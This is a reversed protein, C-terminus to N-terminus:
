GEAEPTARNQIVEVVQPVVRRFLKRCADLLTHDRILGMVSEDSTKLSLELRNDADESPQYMIALSWEGSVVSQMTMIIRQLIDLTAIDLWDSAEYGAPARIADNANLFVDHRESVRAWLTSLASSISPQGAVREQTHAWNVSASWSISDDPMPTILLYLTADSGHHKSLYGVTSQWAMFGTPPRWSAGTM